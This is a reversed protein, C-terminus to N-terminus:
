AFQCIAVPIFHQGQHVLLLSLDIKGARVLVALGVGIKLLLGNQSSDPLGGLISVPLLCVTETLFAFLM